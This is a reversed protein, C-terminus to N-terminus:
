INLGSKQNLKSKLQFCKKAVIKIPACNSTKQAFESQITEAFFILNKMKSISLVIDCLSNIYSRDINLSAVRHYEKIGLNHALERYEIDLEVLTESHDSVFAIPM